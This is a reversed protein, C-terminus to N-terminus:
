WIAAIYAVSLVMGPVVGAIFLEGVSQEAVFAYIILM